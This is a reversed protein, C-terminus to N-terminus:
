WKAIELGLIDTKRGKNNGDKPSLIHAKVESQLISWDSKVSQIQKRRDLRVSPILELRSARLSFYRYSDLM